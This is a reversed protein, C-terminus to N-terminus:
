TIFEVAADAPSPSTSNFRAAALPFTGEHPEPPITVGYLTKWSSSGIDTLVALPPTARIVDSRSYVPLHPTPDNTDPYLGILTYGAPHPQNPYHTVGAKYPNHDPFLDMGSGTSYAFYYTVFENFKEGVWQGDPLNLTNIQQKHSAITVLSM